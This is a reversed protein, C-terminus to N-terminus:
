DELEIALDVCYEDETDSIALEHRRPYLLDLRRKVNQLGVGSHRQVTERVGYKSNEVRFRLLGEDTKVSVRVWGQGRGNIGHKVANEVFPLLLLPAVASGNVHGEKAIRIDVDDERAYRLRCVDLFNDITEIERALPVRDVNTEYIMYRMLESLKVIARGAEGDDNRQTIAYINNLSNFFFHPNIQSRLFAAEAQMKEIVLTRRNHFTLVWDRSLGYLLGLGLAILNGPAIAASRAVRMPHAVMKDSIENPGTPLNYLSLLLRDFGYAAATVVLTTAACAAVFAVVRKAGLFRGVYAFSVAGFIAFAALSRALAAWYISGDINNFEGMFVARNPDYALVAYTGLFAMALAAQELYRTMRFGQASSGGM